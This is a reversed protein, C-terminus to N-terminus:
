WEQNKEKFLDPSPWPERIIDHALKELKKYPFIADFMHLPEMHSIAMGGGILGAGVLLKIIVNKIM